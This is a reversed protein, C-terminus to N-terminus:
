DSYFIWVYVQADTSLQDKVFSGLVCSPSFVAEELFAAPLRIDMHWLSFSPEQREGQVLILEFNIL